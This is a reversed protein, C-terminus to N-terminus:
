NFSVKGQGSHLNIEKMCENSCQIKGQKINSKNRFWNIGIINTSVTAQSKLDTSLDILTSVLENSTYSIDGRVSEAYLSKLNKVSNITTIPKSNPSPNVINAIIIGNSSDVKNIDIQSSATVNLLQNLGISSLFASQSNITIQNVTSTYLEKILTRSHPANINVKDAHVRTINVHRLVISPRFPLNVNITSTSIDEFGVSTSATGNVNITKVTEPITIDITITPCGVSLYGGKFGINLQGNTVKYEFKIQKALNKDGSSVYGYIRVSGKKSNKFTVTHRPLFHFQPINVSISSVPTNIRQNFEEYHNSRQSIQCIRDDAISPTSKIGKMGFLFGFSFGLGILTMLVLFICFACCNRKKRQKCESKCQESNVEQPDEYPQNAQYIPQPQNVQPQQQNQNQQQNLTQFTQYGYQYQVNNQPQLNPYYVQGNEPHQNNQYDKQYYM